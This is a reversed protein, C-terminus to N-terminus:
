FCFMVNGKSSLKNTKHGSQCKKRNTSTNLTMNDTCGPWSSRKGQLVDGVSVGHGKFSQCVLAPIFTRHTRVFISRDAIFYMLSQASWVPIVHQELKQLIPSCICGGRGGFGTTVPWTKVCWILNTKMGLSAQLTVSRCKTWCSAPPWWEWDPWSVHLCWRSASRAPRSQTPAM